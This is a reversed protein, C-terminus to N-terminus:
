YVSPQTSISFQQNNSGASTNHGNLNNYDVFGTPSGHHSPPPPPPPPPMGGGAGGYMPTGSGGPYGYMPAGGGASPQPPFQQQQQQMMMPSGPYMMMPQGANMPSAAYMMPGGGVGGPQMMLMPQQTMPMIAMLQPAALAALATNVNVGMDQLWLTWKTMVPAVNFHGAVSAIPIFEGNGLDIRLELIPTGAYGRRGGQSVGTEHVIINGLQDIPATKNPEQCLIFPFAATIYRVQRQNFDMIVKSWKFKYCFFVGVGGFIIAIIVPVVFIAPSFGFQGVRPAQTAIIAIPVILGIIGFILGFYVQSSRHSYEFRGGTGVVGPPLPAVM